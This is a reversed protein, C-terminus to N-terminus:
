FWTSGRDLQWLFGEKKFCKDLLLFWMQSQCSINHKIFIHHYRASTPISSAGSFQINIHVGWWMQLMTSMVSMVVHWLPSLLLPRVKEEGPPRAALLAPAPSAPSGPWPPGDDSTLVRPGAVFMPPWDSIKPTIDNSEVLWSFKKFDCKLSFSFKWQFLSKWM